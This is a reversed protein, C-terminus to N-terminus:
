QCGPAAIDRGKRRRTSIYLDWGCPQDLSGSEAFAVTEAPGRNRRIMGKGQYVEAACHGGLDDFQLPTNLIADLFFEIDEQLNFRYKDSKRFSYRFISSPVLVGRGSLLPTECVIMGAAECFHTKQETRILYLKKRM